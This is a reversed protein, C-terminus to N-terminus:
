NSVLGIMAINDSLYIVAAPQLAVQNRLQKSHATSPFQHHNTVLLTISSSPQLACIKTGAVQNRPLWTAWCSESPFSGIFIHTPKLSYLQTTDIISKACYSHM